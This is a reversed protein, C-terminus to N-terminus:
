RSTGRGELELALGTCAAGVGRTEASRVLPSHIITGGGRETVGAIYEFGKYTLAM